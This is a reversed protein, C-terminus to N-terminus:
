LTDLNNIFKGYEDSLLGQCGCSAAGLGAATEVRVFGRGHSVLGAQALAGITVTVGSRRVGLMHSLAEHTVPVTDSGLRMRALLLWRALRQEVTHLTNCLTTQSVQSMLLRSYRLVRARFGPLQEFCERAQTTRIRLASAGVRVAATHAAAESGLLALVGGLGERGLGGVEVSVGDELTSLLSLLGGETFHIFPVVEEPEYLREGADLPVRALGPALRRFEEPPLSALLLNGVEAQRVTAFSM